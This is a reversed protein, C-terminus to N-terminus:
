LGVRAGARPPPSDGGPRPEGAGAPTGRPLRRGPPSPHPRKGHGAERGGGGRPAQRWGGVDYPM